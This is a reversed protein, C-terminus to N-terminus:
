APLAAVAIALLVGGAAACGGAWLWLRAPRPPPLPEGALRRQLAGRFAPSPPPAPPLEHENM